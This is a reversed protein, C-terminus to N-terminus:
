SKFKYIIPILEVNQNAKLWINGSLFGLEVVGAGEMDGLDSFGKKSGIKLSCNNCVEIAFLKCGDEIKYQYNKNANLKILDGNKFGLKALIGIQEIKENLLKLKKDILSDLGNISDVTDNKHYYSDMWEWFQEQTPTKGTSFWSKLISKKAM